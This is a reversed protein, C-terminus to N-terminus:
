IVLYLLQWSDPKIKQKWKSLRLVKGNKSKSKEESMNIFLGDIHVINICHVNMWPKTIDSCFLEFKEDEYGLKQKKLSSSDGIM